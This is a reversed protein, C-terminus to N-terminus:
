VRSLPTHPTPPLQVAIADGDRIRGGEIVVTANPVPTPNVCDIVTANTLVTRM